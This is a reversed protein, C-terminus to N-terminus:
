DPQVDNNTLGFLTVMKRDKRGFRVTYTTEFWSRHSNVIRGPAGNKVVTHDGRRIDHAAHVRVKTAVAV